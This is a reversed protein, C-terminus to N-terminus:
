HKNKYETEKRAENEDRRVKASAEGETYHLTVNDIFKSTKGGMCSSYLIELLEPLTINVRISESLLGNLRSHVEEPDAKNEIANIYDKLITNFRSHQTSKSKISM